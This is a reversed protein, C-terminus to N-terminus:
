RGPDRETLAFEAPGFWDRLPELYAAFNEPKELLTNIRAIAARGAPRDSCAVYVRRQSKDGAIRLLTFSERLGLMAPSYNLDLISGFGFDAHGSALLRLPLRVNAIASRRTKKAPDAIFADIAEDYFQSDAYAGTLDGREALKGLLIEGNGDLLPRFQELRDSRIVVGATSGRVSRDSFRAFAAREPTKAVGLSCIGDEHSMEFWLRGPPVLRIHHEFDPLAGILFRLQRDGFGTDRLPGEKIFIPPVDPLVWEITEAAAAPPLALGLLILLRRM